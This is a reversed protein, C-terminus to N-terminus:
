SMRLWRVLHLKQYWLGSSLRLGTLLLLFPLFYIPVTPPFLKSFTVVGIFYLISRTGNWLTAQICTWSLHWQFSHLIHQLMAQHKTYCDAPRAASVPNLDERAVPHSQAVGDWNNWVWLITTSTLHFTSLWAHQRYNRTPFFSCFTNYVPETMQVLKMINQFKAFYIPCKLFPEKFFCVERQMEVPFFSLDSFSSFIFCILTYKENWSCLYQLKFNQVWKPVSLATGASTVGGLPRCEKHRLARQLLIIGHGWCSTETSVRRIHSTAYHLQAFRDHPHLRKFCCGSGVTTM